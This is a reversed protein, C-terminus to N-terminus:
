PLILFRKPTITNLAVKLVIETINHCATKNPSSVSSFWQCVEDYLTADLVGQWSRSEFEVM